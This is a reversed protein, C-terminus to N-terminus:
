HCAACHGAALDPSLYPIGLSLGRLILLLAVLAVSVPVLKQYNFNVALKRGLIPIALMMPLTGIGFAIMYETASLLHGTAAAATAAVYVLGCPLLGNTAGLALLAPYTRQHLLKRFLSKVRLVLNTAPKHFSIRAFVLGLLIFAGASLSLWSQFGALSLTEGVAGFLAGIVSYTAIRGLNYLLRSALLGGPSTNVAPVALALPGCMGACHLSGVFGLIFASVLM